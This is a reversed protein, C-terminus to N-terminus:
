GVYEFSFGTKSPQVVMVATKAKNVLDQGAGLIQELLAQATTAANQTM